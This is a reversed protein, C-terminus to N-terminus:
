SIISEYASKPIQMWYHSGDNLELQVDVTKEMQMLGSAAYGEKKQLHLVNKIDEKKFRLIGSNNEERLDKIIYTGETTLCMVFRDYASVAYFGLLAGAVAVVAVATKETSSVERLWLNGNPWMKDLQEGDDYGYHKRMVPNDKQRKKIVFFYFVYLASAGILIVALKNM